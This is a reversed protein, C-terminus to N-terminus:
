GMAACPSNSHKLTAACAGVGRAGAGCMFNVREKQSRRTRQRIFGIGLDATKKTPKRISHYVLHIGEAVVAIRQTKWSLIAASGVRRSQPKPEILPKCIIVRVARGKKSWFKGRGRKITPTITDRQKNESM